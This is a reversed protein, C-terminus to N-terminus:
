EARADVEAESQYRPDDDDAPVDDDLEEPTVPTPMLAYGGKMVSCGLRIDDDLTLAAFDAKSMDRPALGTGPIEIGSAKAFFRQSIAYRTADVELWQGRLIRGEDRYKALLASLAGYTSVRKRLVFLKTATAAIILAGKRVGAPTDAVSALGAVGIISTMTM